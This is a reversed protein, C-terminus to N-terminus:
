STTTAVVYRRWGSDLRTGALTGSIHEEPIALELLSPPFASIVGMSLISTCASGSSFFLVAYITHLSAQSPLTRYHM